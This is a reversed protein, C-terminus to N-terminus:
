VTSLHINISEPDQIHDIDVYTEGTGSKAARCSKNAVILCLLVVVSVSILAILVGMSIVIVILQTYDNEQLAENELTPEVVLTPGTSTGSIMPKTVKKINDELDTNQSELTPEVVMTTDIDIKTTNFNDVNIFINIDIETMRRTPIETIAGSDTFFLSLFLICLIYSCYLVVVALAHCTRGVEQM